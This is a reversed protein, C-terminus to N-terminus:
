TAVYTLDAVWLHNPATACFRREVLDAPRAATPDAVTTRRTKGRVRGALGLQRMLRETRCRSIAIGERNLQRWVIRAGYVGRNDTRVRRIDAKLSEDTVPRRCASPEQGLLLHLSRGAAGRLDARGRLQGPPRRHLRDSRTDATSSRGSSFQPRSWSRTPGGCSGPEGEGPTIRAKDETTTGLRVGGDIEAQRVWNRLSETGIGLQRGIRIIM